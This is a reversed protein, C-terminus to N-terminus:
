QHKAMRYHSPINHRELFPVRSESVIEMGVHKYFGVAPNTSNVDLHVQKLGRSRSREFVETLLQRGLGRGQVDPSTALWQVYYADDPIPPCLYDFWGFCSLLHDRISPKLISSAISVTAAVRDHKEANTYGLELGVPSGADEIVRGLRHSFMSDDSEWWATLCQERAELDGDFMWFWIEPATSIALDNITLPM